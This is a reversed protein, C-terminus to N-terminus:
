GAERRELCREPGFRAARAVGHLVGVPSRGPVGRRRSGADCSLEDLHELAIGGRRESTEATMRREGLLRRERSVAATEDGIGRGVRRQVPLAQGPPAALPAVALAEPRWTPIAREHVTPWRLRKRVAPDRARRRKERRREAAPAMLEAGLR